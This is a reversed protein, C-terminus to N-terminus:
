QNVGKCNYTGLTLTGNSGISTTVVDGKDLLVMTIEKETYSTASSLHSIYVVVGNITVTVSNGKSTGFIRLWQVKESTFGTNSRLIETTSDPTLWAVIQEKASQSANINSLDTDAKGNLDTAINDINAEINTKTTTAVVIYYYGEIPQAINSLDAIIGSKTPDTDLGVAKTSTLASSGGVNQTGVNKGYAASTAFLDGNSTLGAKNTGDTFGLAIGNGIAPVENKFGTSYLHSGVKPLRVSAGETYVYKKCIGYNTVSEQWEEEACFREPNTTYLDAIYETIFKDYVGGVSLLSGDALHLGDDIIPDLSFIIQGTRVIAARAAEEVKETLKEVKQVTQNINKAVETAIEASENASKVFDDIEDISVDSNILGTEEENWKLTKGADPIPLTLNAEVSTSVPLKISRNIEEQQQQSLMTLKDFCQEFTEAPASNFDRYDVEQTQEYQRYITIYDDTTRIDNVTLTGGLRDTNLEVTYDVDYVLDIEKGNALVVKAKIAKLAEEETPDQLLVAFNFPFEATVGMQLPSMKNKTNEVTM